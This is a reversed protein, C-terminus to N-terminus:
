TIILDWGLSDTARRWNPGVGRPQRKASADARVQEVIIRARNINGLGVNTELKRLREIAYAQQTPFESECGMIFLPLILASECPMGDPIQCLAEFCHSISDQALKTLSDPRYGLSNSM